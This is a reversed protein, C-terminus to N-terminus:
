QKAGSDHTSWTAGGDGSKLVTGYDGVAFCTSDSPCSIGTLRDNGKTQVSPTGGNSDVNSTTVIKGLEGVAVCKAASPCSVSDLPYTDTREPIPAAVNSGPTDYSGIPLNFADPGPAGLGGRASWSAGADR